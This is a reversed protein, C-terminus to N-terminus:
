LELIESEVPKIFTILGGIIEYTVPDILGLVIEVEDLGDKANYIMFLILVHIWYRRFFDVFTTLRLEMWKPKFVPLLIVGLALASIMWTLYVGQM